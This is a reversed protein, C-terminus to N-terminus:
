IDDVNVETDLEVSVTGTELTPIFTDEKEVGLVSWNEDLKKLSAVEQPSYIELVDCKDKKTEFERLGVLLWADVHIIEKKKGSFKKPINCLRIVCDICKVSLWGNGLRKQVIAYKENASSSTRVM